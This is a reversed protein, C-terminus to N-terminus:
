PGNMFSMMKKEIIAKVGKNLSKTMVKYTTNTMKKSGGGLFSTM